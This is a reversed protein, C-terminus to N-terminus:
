DTDVHLQTHPAAVSLGAGARGPAGKGGQKSWELMPRMGRSQQEAGAGRCVAGVGLM